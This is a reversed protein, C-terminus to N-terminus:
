RAQSPRAHSSTASTAHKDEVGEYAALTAAWNAARGHTDMAALQADFSAVTDGAATLFTYGALTTM